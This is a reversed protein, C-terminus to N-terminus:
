GNKEGGNESCDSLFEQTIFWSYSGRSWELTDYNVLSVKEKFKSVLLNYNQLHEKEKKINPSYCVQDMIDLVTTNEKLQLLRIALMLLDPNTQIQDLLAATRKERATEIDKATHLFRESSITAAHDLMFPTAGKRIAEIIKATELRNLYPGVNKHIGTLQKTKVANKRSVANRRELEKVLAFYVNQKQANPLKEKIREKIKTTNM